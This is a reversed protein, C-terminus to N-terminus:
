LGSGRHVTQDLPAQSAGGRGLLQQRRRRHVGVVRAAGLSEDGRRLGCGGAHVRGGLEPLGAPDLGGCLVPPPGPLQVRLHLTEVRM